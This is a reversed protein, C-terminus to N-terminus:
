PFKFPASLELSRKSCKPCFMVKKGEIVQISSEDIEVFPRKCEPCAYLNLEKARTPIWVSALKQPPAYPLNTSVDKPVAATKWRITVFKRCTCCYGSIRGAYDYFGIELAPKFM